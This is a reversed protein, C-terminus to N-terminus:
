LANKDAPEDIDSESRLRENEIELKHIRKTLEAVENKTEKITHDKKRM